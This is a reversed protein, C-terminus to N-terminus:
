KAKKKVTGRDVRYVAHADEAGGHADTVRFSAADAAKQIAGTVFSFVVQGDSGWADDLAQFRAGDVGAVKMTGNARYLGQSDCAWSNTGTELLFRFSGADLKKKPEGWLYVTRADAAWAGREGFARFSAPDGGPVAVLVHDPHGFPQRTRAFDKRFVHQRDTGFPQQTTWARFSAPDAGEVRHGNFYVHRSDRAFLDGLTQFSAPDAERIARWRFFVQTGDHAHDADLVQLRAPDAGRVLHDVQRIERGHRCALQERFFVANASRHWAHAIAQADEPHKDYDPHWWGVIGPHHKLLWDKLRMAHENDLSYEVTATEKHANACSLAASQHFLHDRDAVYPGNAVLTPIDVGDFHFFHSGSKVYLRRSDRAFYTGNPLLAFSAPDAGPVPRDELYLADRDLGYDDDVVRFGEAHPSVFRATHSRGDFWWVGKADRLYGLWLWGKRFAHIVAFGDASLGGKIAVPADQGDGILMPHGDVVAFPTTM